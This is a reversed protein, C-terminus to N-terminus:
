EVILVPARDLRGESGDYFDIADAQGYGYPENVDDSHTTNIRFQTRGSTNIAGVAAANLEILVQQDVAAGTLGWNSDVACDNVDAPANFDAAGEMATDNNFAKCLDLTYGLKDPDPNSCPDWIQRNKVTLGLWARTIDVGELVKTDFSVISHFYNGFGNDGIRISGSEQYNDNRIFGDEGDISKIFPICGESGPEDRCNTLWRGALKGYDNFNVISDHFYDPEGNTLWNDALIKVDSFDVQCDKNLDGVLGYYCQPIIIQYFVYAWSPEGNGVDSDGDILLSITDGANMHGVGVVGDQDGDDFWTLNDRDQYAGNDDGDVHWTALECPENNLWLRYRVRRASTDMDGNNVQWVYGRIYVDNAAEPATWRILLPGFTQVEGKTGGHCGDRNLWPLEWFGNFDWPGNGGTGTGDFTWNDTETCMWNPELWEGYILLGECPDMYKWTSSNMDDSNNVYDDYLDYVIGPPPLPPKRYVSAAIETGKGVDLSDLADFTGEDRNLRYAYLKGEGFVHVIDDKDVALRYPTTNCDGSAPGIIALAIREMSGDGDAITHPHPTWAALSVNADVYSNVDVSVVTGDSLIVFDTIGPMLDEPNDYPTQSVTEYGGLGQYQYANQELTGGQEEKNDFFVTNDLPSTLMEDIVYTQGKDGETGFGNDTNYTYCAFDDDDPGVGNYYVAHIWGDVGIAVEGLANVDDYTEGAHYFGAGNPDYRVLHGGTREFGYLGYDAPSVAIDTVDEWSDRLLTFDGGGVSSYRYEKLYKTGVDNVGTPASGDNTAIYIGGGQGNRSPDVEIHSVNADQLEIAGLSYRNGQDLSPDFTVHALAPGLSNVDDLGVYLDRPVPGWYGSVDASSTSALSTEAQNKLDNTGDEIIAITDGIALNGGSADVVTIELVDPSTWVGTYDSGLSKGGFDILGDIQAKTGALPENTNMDFTLTLMDGNSLAPDSHDPDSAVASSIEPPAPGWAGTVQGSTDSADSTGAQNKLDNTGDIKIAITDGIALDGGTADTVTIKLVNPDTWVGTYDTGLSKGGFDILGDIQAKTGALPENTNIDFVLTLTDGNNIGGYTNNPDDAVVQTFVPYSILPGNPNIWLIPRNMGSGSGDYFDMADDNSGPATGTNIRFQTRGSKNIAAIASATLHIQVKQGPKLGHMGWPSAEACDNVDASADRDEPINLYIDGNFATSLDITAGFQDPYPDNNDWIKNNQCTLVLCADTITVGSLSNTDFSIISIFTRDDSEGAGVRLHDYEGSDENSRIMGDEDLANNNNHISYFLLNCPDAAYGYSGFLVVILAFLLLLRKTHKGVEGRGAEYTRTNERIM